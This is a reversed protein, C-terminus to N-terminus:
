PHARRLVGCETHKEVSARQAAGAAIRQRFRTMHRMCTGLGLTSRSRLVDFDWVLALSVMDAVAPMKRVMFVDFILVRRRAAVVLWPSESRREEVGVAKGECRESILRRSVVGRSRAAGIGEVVTLSSVQM